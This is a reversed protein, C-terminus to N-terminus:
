ARNVIRCKTRGTATNPRARTKPGSGTCVATSSANEAMDAAGLAQTSAARVPSSPASIAPKTVRDVRGPMTLEGNASPM